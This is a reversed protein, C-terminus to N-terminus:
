FESSVTSTLFFFRLTTYHLATQTTCNTTRKYNLTTRMTIKPVVSQLKQMSCMTSQIMATIKTLM